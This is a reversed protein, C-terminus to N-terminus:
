PDILTQLDAPDWGRALLMEYLHRNILKVTKDSM